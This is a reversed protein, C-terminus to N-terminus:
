AVLSVFNLFKTEFAMWLVCTSNYVFCVTNKQSRQEPSYSSPNFGNFNTLFLVAKLLEGLPALNIKAELLHCM